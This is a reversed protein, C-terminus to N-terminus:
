LLGAMGGIVGMNPKGDITLGARIIYVKGDTGIVYYNNLQGDVKAFLRHDVITGQGLRDKIAKEFAKHIPDNEEWARWERKEGWLKTDINNILIKVQEETLKGNKIEGISKIEGQTPPQQNKKVIEDLVAKRQDEDQGKTFSVIYMVKGDQAFDITYNLGETLYRAPIYTRGEASLIFPEVDMIKNKGNVKYTQNGIFLEVKNNNGTATVKRAEGDWDVKAGLAEAMIRYPVFTRDLAIFPRGTEATFKIENDASDVFFRVDYNKQVLDYNVRPTAVAKKGMHLGAIIKSQNDFETTFEITSTLLYLLTFLGIAIGRAIQLTKKM